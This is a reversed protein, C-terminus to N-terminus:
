DNEDGEKKNMSREISLLAGKGIVVNRKTSLVIHTIPIIVVKTLEKSKFLKNWEVVFKAITIQNEIVKRKPIIYSPWIDNEDEFIQVSNDDSLYIYYEKKDESVAKCVVAEETATKILEMKEEM